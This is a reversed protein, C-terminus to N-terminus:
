ARCPRGAGDSRCRGASRASGPSWRCARGARDSRCRGASGASGSGTAGPAGDVGNTGNTGASGAPGAAGIAGTAGTAGKLAIRSWSRMTETSRCAPHGNVPTVIRAIKTLKNVCAYIRTQPTYTYTTADVAGSAALTLGLAMGLALQKRGRSAPPTTSKTM